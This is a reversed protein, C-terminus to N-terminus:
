AVSRCLEATGHQLQLCNNEYVHKFSKTILTLYTCILNLYRTWVTSTCMFDTCSTTCVTITKAYLNIICFLLSLLISIHSSWGGSGPPSRSLVAYMKPQVLSYLLLYENKSDSVNMFNNNTNAISNM